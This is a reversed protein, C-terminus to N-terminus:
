RAGIASAPLKVSCQADGLIWVEGTDGVMGGHFNGECRITKTKKERNQQHTVTVLVTEKAELDQYLDMAAQGKVVLAGAEVVYDSTSENNITHAVAVNSLMCVAILFLVNKM